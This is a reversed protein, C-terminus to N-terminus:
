SRASPRTKRASSPTTAPIARPCNASSASASRTITAAPSSRPARRRACRPRTSSRTACARRRSATWAGADPHRRRLHGVRRLGPRRDHDAAREARREAARRAAAVVAHFGHREGQDRRRIEAAAAAATERSDHDHRQALGARGHRGASRSSCRDACRCDSFGRAARRCGSHCADVEDKTRERRRSGAKAGPAGQAGSSANFMTRSKVRVPM